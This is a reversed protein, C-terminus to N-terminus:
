KRSGNEDSADSVVSDYRLIRPDNLTFPNAFQCYNAVTSTQRIKDSKLLRKYLLYASTNANRWLM